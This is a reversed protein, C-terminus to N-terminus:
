GARLRSLAVAGATAVNLSDFGGHMPIAVTRCRALVGASLGPGEAGLILARRGGPQLTHIPTEGGPSLALLEFRAAELADLIENIPRGTSLPLRLAAGVSVRVAKRYFPDSCLDDLLVGHAGFAAANRLIGGLNDHNSVGAAVVVVADEGAGALLDGPALDAPRDAMALIGRHIPFGVVADMVAQEAAFVPAADPMRALVDGLAEIRHAAILASLPRARSAPSLLTELVVRGEIVVRGRRGVLDRERIDLYDAIRPDAPDTVPIIPM